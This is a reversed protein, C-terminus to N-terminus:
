GNQTPAVTVVGGSKGVIRVPANRAISRGDASRALFTIERGRIVCAAQGYEAGAIADILRAECGIIEEDGITSSAQSAYFLRLILYGIAGVAAAGVLGAMSSKMMTWGATARFGFGVAGFGVLLLAIIKINIVGPGHGDAGVGGADADVHFDTDHGFIVSLLLTLFGVAFITAFILM